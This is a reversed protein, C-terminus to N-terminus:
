LSYIYARAEEIETRTYRESLGGQSLIEAFAVNAYELESLYDEAFGVLHRALMYRPTGHPVYEKSIKKVTTGSADLFDIFCIDSM